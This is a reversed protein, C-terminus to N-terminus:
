KVMFTKFLMLEMEMQKDTTSSKLKTETNVCVKILESLQKISFKSAQNMLKECVFQPLRYKSMFFDLRKGRGLYVKIEYLRKFHNGISSIILMHQDAKFLLEDLLDIAKEVRRISIYEVLDFIDDESKNQILKDIDEKTIERGIAYCDLKDVERKIIDFNNQVKDAFYRLQIKGISRGKEKFLDEVRKYYKDKKLKDCHVVKVYKDLTSLKKNKKPTDRKDNFLYYMILVTHKPLDKIYKLLETYTKAGDKDPKDKLFNARYVLVVKKEGFFPLTECANEIEDFTTTLGDLKIFNLDLFDKDVVKKIIPDISSKILEEDLGCFIYGNEINNKKLEGELVDINIM